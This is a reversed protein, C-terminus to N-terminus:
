IYSFTSCAISIQSCQLCANDRRSALWSVHSITPSDKDKFQHANWFCISSCELLELEPKSFVASKGFFGFQQEVEETNFVLSIAGVRGNKTM